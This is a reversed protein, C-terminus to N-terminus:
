PATPLHSFAQVSEESLSSRHLLASTGFSRLHVRASMRMCVRVCLVGSRSDRAQPVAVHPRWTRGFSQSIRVQHLHVQHLGGHIICVHQCWLAMGDM